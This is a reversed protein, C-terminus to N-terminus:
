TGAIGHGINDLPNPHFFEGAGIQGMSVADRMHTDEM